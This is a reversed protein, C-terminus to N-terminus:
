RPSIEPLRVIDAKALYLITSEITAMNEQLSRSLDAPTTTGALAVAEAVRLALKPAILRRMYLERGSFRDYLQLLEPSVPNGM